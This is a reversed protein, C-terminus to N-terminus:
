LGAFEAGGICFVQVPRITVTVGTSAVESTHAVTDTVHAYALRAAEAVREPPEVYRALGDNITVSAVPAWAAAQDLNDTDTEDPVLVSNTLMTYLTVTCGEPDYEVAATTVTGSTRAVVVPRITAKDTVIDIQGTNDTRPRVDVKGSITGNADLATKAATATDAATAAVTVTVSTGDVSISFEDGANIADDTWAISVRRQVGDRRLCALATWRLDAAVNYAGRGTGRLEPSLSPDSVGTVVRPSLLTSKNSLQVANATVSM